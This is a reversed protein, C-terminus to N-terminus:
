NRIGFQLGYTRPEGWFRLNGVLPDQRIKTHAYLTDTLNKVWLAVFWRKNMSELQLRSNVLSYGSQSVVDDQFTNFFVKSQYAYEGSLSLDGIGHLNWTYQARATASFEPAQQLRAGARDVEGNQPNNPDLAVFRDFEADLWAVSLNITTNATPQAQFDMELGRYSAEAANIVVPFTGVVAGPPLTLLQIDDYDYFFGALNLRMRGDLYSSKLGIEYAWLDEEDFSSQLTNSNFGGAKYGNGISLYAMVQDSHIYEVGIKPTWANWRDKDNSEIITSGGLIGFPDTVEQLYEQRREDMSYRLGLTTRWNDTFRHSGQWFIGIAETTIDAGPETRAPLFEPLGQIPPAPFLVEIDLKQFANEKLFFIGAVWEIIENSDNAIQFEQTFVESRQDVTNSAFDADSADLDILELSETERHSTLSKLEISKITTTFSLQTGWSELSVRLDENHTGERPNSRVEGKFPPLLGINIGNDPDPHSALGSSSDDQKSYDFGIRFESDDAFRYQLHSRIANINEDDMDTNRFVNESYGDHRSVLGSIRLAARDTIPANLTGSLRVSDYNGLSIDGSMEFKDTPKRTIIHVAGGTANRGFLTGQPGKIVEVREVDYFHHLASSARPLYIGDQFYAVSSEAGVTIVDSGVGRIYPQGRISNTKFVYGPVHFQMEMTDHVLSKELEDGTLVTIAIPVHQLNVARREATVIVEDLVTTASVGDPKLARDGARTDSQALAQSYM